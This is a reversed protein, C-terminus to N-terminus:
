GSGCGRRIYVVAGNQIQLWDLEDTIGGERTEAGVGCLDSVAETVLAPSKRVTRERTNRNVPWFSADFYDTCTAAADAALCEDILSQADAGNYVCVLDVQMQSNGDDTIIGLWWGDPIVEGVSSDAGCGSGRAAEGGLELVSKFDGFPWGVAVLTTATADIAAITTTAAPDVTTTAEVLTSAATVGPLPSLQRPEEPRTRCAGLLAAAILIPGLVGRRM